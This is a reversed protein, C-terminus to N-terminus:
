MLSLRIARDFLQSEYPDAMLRPKLPRRCRHLTIWHMMLEMAMIFITFHLFIIYYIRYGNINMHLTLIVCEMYQSLNKLFMYCCSYVWPMCFLIFVSTPLPIGDENTVILLLSFVAAPAIPRHLGINNVNLAFKRKKGMLMVFNLKPSYLILLLVLANHLIRGLAIWLSLVINGM